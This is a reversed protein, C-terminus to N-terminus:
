TTRCCVVSCFSECYYSSNIKAGPQVFVLLTKGLSLVTVFVM